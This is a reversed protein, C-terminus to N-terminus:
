GQLSAAWAEALVSWLRDEGDRRWCSSRGNAYAPRSSCGPKRRGLTDAAKRPPRAECWFLLVLKTLGGEGAQDDRAAFASRRAKRHFREAFMAGIVTASTALLSGILVTLAVLALLGQNTQAGAVFGAFAGVALLQTVRLSAANSRGFVVRLLGYLSAPAFAGLIGVLYYV